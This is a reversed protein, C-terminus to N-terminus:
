KDSNPDLNLHKVVAEILPKKEVIGNLDSHRILSALGETLTKIDTLVLERKEDVNDPLVFENPKGLILPNEKRDTDIDVIVVNKM